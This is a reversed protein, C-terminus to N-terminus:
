LVFITDASVCFYQSGEVRKLLLYTIKYSMHIKNYFSGMHIEKVSTLLHVQVFLLIIYLIYM